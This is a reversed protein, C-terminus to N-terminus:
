SRARRRAPAPAPLPPAVRAKAAEVAAVIDAFEQYARYRAAWLDMERLARQLLQARLAPDTFAAGTPVYERRDDRIVNSYSAMQFVRREGNPVDEVIRVKVRRMLARAQNKRHMQGALADDWEFYQHLPSEVPAAAEVVDEATLGRGLTAELSTLVARIRKGQKSVAQEDIM